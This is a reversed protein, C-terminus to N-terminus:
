KGKVRVPDLFCCKAAGKLCWCSFLSALSMDFMLLDRKIKLPVYLQFWCCVFVLSLSGLPGMETATGGGPGFQRAPVDASARSAEGERCRGAGGRRRRESCPSIEERRQLFSGFCSPLEPGCIKRDLNSSPKKNHSAANSKHSAASSTWLACISTQAFSSM